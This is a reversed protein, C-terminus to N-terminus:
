VGVARAKKVLKVEIESFHETQLLDIKRENDLHLLPIFTLVKDEKTESEPVLESFTLKKKNGKFFIVIRKYMDKILLNMDLSNHPIQIQPVYSKYMSRRTQVGIAKELANILDYVSVKRKRPQPTRPFLAAQMAISATGYGVGEDLLLNEEEIEGVSNMLADWASIDYTLLRNSKIRLLISSALLIKGSIRFDMDKLDRLKELFKQTILSIDVDWPDMQETKVLDYIINQWTIEDQDFLMTLIQQQEM